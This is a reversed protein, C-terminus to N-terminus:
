FNENFGVNGFWKEIWDSIAMNEWYHWSRQWHDKGNRILIWLNSKQNLVTVFSFGSSVEEWLCVSDEAVCLVIGESLFRSVVQTVRVRSALSFVGVRFHAPFGWVCDWGQLLSLSPPLECSGAERQPTYPKSGVSPVVVKLVEAQSIFGRFM